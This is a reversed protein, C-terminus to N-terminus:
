ALMSALAEAGAVSDFCNAALHPWEPDRAPSSIQTLFDRVEAMVPRPSAEWQPDPPLAANGLRAAGPERAFDLEATEGDQFVVRINRERAEAYRGCQADIKVAGATSEFSISGDARRSASAIIQAADGALVRVISWIHPYLDHALPTSDDARKIEGYREEHAPDFWRLSISAIGRGGLQKAFHRLYSASLLHVGVALVLDARAAADILSRAAGTEFALPKEVFAHIGRRLCAGAVEAHTCPATVVLAAEPQEALVDDLGSRLEFKPGRTSFQGINRRVAAQNHRSVWLVRDGSGLLLALNSAHVRGWRGGGVLAITQRDRKM